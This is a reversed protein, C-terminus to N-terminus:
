LHFLIGGQGEKKIWHKSNFFHLSMKSLLVYKPWFGKYSTCEEEQNCPNLNPGDGFSSAKPLTRICTWNLTGSFDQMHQTPQCHRPSLSLLGSM